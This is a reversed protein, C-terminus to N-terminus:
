AKLFFGWSNNVDELSVRDYFAKSMIRYRCWYLSNKLAFHVQKELPIDWLWWNLPVYGQVYSYEIIDYIEANQQM